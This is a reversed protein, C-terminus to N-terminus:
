TELRLAFTMISVNYAFALGALLLFLAASFWSSFGVELMVLAMLVNVALYIGLTFANSRNSGKRVMTRIFSITLVPLLLVIAAWIFLRRAWAMRQVPAPPDLAAVAAAATAGPAGPKTENNYHRTFVTDGSGVKALTLDLDLRAGGPYSEFSNIKGFLVGQAGSGGAQRQAQGPETPGQVRLHLAKRLRDWLREQRVDFVGSQELASRLHDSVYDSPDNALHLLVVSGVPAKAKRLDEVILPVMENATQKRLMGVEPKTPGIYFWGQLLLYGALAAVGLFVLLRFLWTVPHRVVSVPTEYLTRLM